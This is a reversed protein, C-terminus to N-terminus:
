RRPRPQWGLPNSVDHRRDANDSVAYVVLHRGPITTADLCRQVLDVCDAHSLWVQRESPPVPPPRDDRNVGGFRICVVELGESDAYFRGLAEMFVKAAGYPGNPLPLEHPSLLRDAARGVFSDAHVSSAMVIRPVGAAAAARYINLVQRLNDVHHADPDSGVEINNWALHIVADHGRLREVLPEFARTDGDPLDFGTKAGSLGRMLVTGIVGRSGTILVKM